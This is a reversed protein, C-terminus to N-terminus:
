CSRFGAGSERVGLTFRDEAAVREGGCLPSERRKMGLGGASASVLSVGADTRFREGPVGADCGFVFRVWALLYAMSAGARTMFLELSSDVESRYYLFDDRPGVTVWWGSRFNDEFFALANFARAPSQGHPEMCAEVAQAATDRIQLLSVRARRDCGMTVACSGHIWQAGCAMMDDFYPDDDMGDPIPVWTEERGFNSPHTDALIQRLALQCESARPETNSQLCIAMMCHASQPLLAVLLTVLRATTLGPRM